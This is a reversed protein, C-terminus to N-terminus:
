RPVGPAREARAGRERELFQEFPLSCGRREAEPLRGELTLRNGAAAGVDETQIALPVDLNALDYHVLLGPRGEPLDLMTEPDLVRTRVWPPIVFGRRAPRREHAALLTDEYFQSGMEAMGYENVLHTRPIGFVRHISAAMDDPRLEVRTGKAGGTDMARSGPPLAFCLGRRDCREVYARLLLTTGLLLVPVRGDLSRALEADAREWRPEGHEVIWSPADCLRAAVRDAMFWLSSRPSEARTPGFIIMKLRAGDPLLHRTFSKLLSTEYLHTSTLHVRGPRTITTGSTEFTVTPSAPAAGGSTGGDGVRAASLGHEKFASSPVPPIERWDGLGGPGRGVHRAYAGYEPITDCQIRFSRIALDSFAAEAGRAQAAPEEWGAASIFRALDAEMERM